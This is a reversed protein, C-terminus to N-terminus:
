WCNALSWWVRARTEILQHGDIAVSVRPALQDLGAKLSEDVEDQSVKLASKAELREADHQERALAFQEGLSDLQRSAEKREAEHSIRLQTIQLTSDKHQEIAQERMILLQWQATRLLWLTFLVNLSAIIAALGTVIYNADDEPNIELGVITTGLMLLGALSSSAVALGLPTSWRETTARDPGTTARAMSKPTM